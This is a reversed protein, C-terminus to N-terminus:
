LEVQRGRSPMAYRTVSGEQTVTAGNQVFHEESWMPQTTSRTTPEDGTWAPPRTNFDRRSLQRGLWTIEGTEADCTGADVFQGQEDFIEIFWGENDWGDDVFGQVLLAFSVESEVPARVLHLDSLNHQSYWFHRNFTDTVPQPLDLPPREVELCDFGVDTHLSRLEVRGIQCDPFLPKFSGTEQLKALEEEYFSKVSTKRTSPTM